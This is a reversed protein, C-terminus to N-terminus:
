ERTGTRPDKESLPRTSPLAGIDGEPIERMPHRRGQTEDEEDEDTDEEDEDDETEEDDDEEETTDDTTTSATDDTSTGVDTDPVSDTSTSTGDDTSTSTDEPVVTNSGGGGGGGRNLTPKEEDLLEETSTSAGEVSGIEGSVEIVRSPPTIPSIDTENEIVPTENDEVIVQEEDDSDMDSEETETDTNNETSVPVVAQTEPPTHLSEKTDNASLVIYVVLGIVAALGGLAILINQTTFLGWLSGQPAPLGGPPINKIGELMKAKAAGLESVNPQIKAGLQQLQQEINNKM